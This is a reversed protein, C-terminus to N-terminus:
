QTPCLATSKRRAAAAEWQFSCTCWQHQCRGQRSKTCTGETNRILDRSGQYWVQQKPSPGAPFLVITPFSMIQMGEVENRTADLKGIKLTKVHRLNKALTKYLPEFKRCHGCWPAYFDVLVDKETDQSVATFTTGVLASVPGGSRIEEPTPEPESRMWPKLRNGEWDSVFDLLKPVTLGDLLLRYKRASHYEGAAGTNGHTELLTLVPGSDPEVGLLESVRREIPSDLGSICLLVRGRLLPAAERFIAESPSGSERTVLFLVPSSDTGQSKLLRDMVSDDMRMVQPFRRAEIWRELELRDEMNANYVSYREDHPTFMVISPPLFSPREKPAATEDDCCKLQLVQDWGAAQDTRQVVLQKGAVTASFKDTWEPRQPNRPTDTCHMGERPLDVQKSNHPSKGIDITECLLAAHRSLHEGIQKSLETGRAEAFIVEEFRRSANAFVQSTFGDPFLGIVNLDNDHLFADVDEAKTLIHDTETHKNVWKVIQQWGRNPSDYEFVAGDIFLKMMPFARINNQEAISQYRSADIKVLKVPPDHLELKQAAIDM